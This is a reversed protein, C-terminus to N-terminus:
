LKGSVDARERLTNRFVFPFDAGALFILGLLVALVPKRYLMIAFIRVRYFADCNGASIPAMSSRM